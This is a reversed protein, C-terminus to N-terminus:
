SSLVGRAAAEAQVRLEPVATSEFDRDMLLPGIAWLAPAEGQQTMLRGADSVQVGVGSRGPLALGDALLSQLLPNSSKRM